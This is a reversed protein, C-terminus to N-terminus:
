VVKVILHAKKSTHRLYLKNLIRRKAIEHQRLAELVQVRAPENKEWAKGFSIKTMCQRGNIAKYTGNYLLRLYYDLLEKLPTIWM